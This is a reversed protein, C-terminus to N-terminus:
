LYFPRRHPDQSLFQGQNPNYYRANLYSLGTPDSFQGIYQRAATTTGTNTSTVVYGYPSYVFRQALAGGTDSTVNTSGLIDPHNYRLLASGTSSGNTLKQDVTALLLGTPGSPTPMYLYDTTTAATGNIVKSMYPNPYVTTIGGTTQSVRSGFADYGYSTSAM